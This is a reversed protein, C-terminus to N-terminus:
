WNPWGDGPQFVRSTLMRTLGYGGLGAKTKSGLARATAIVLRPTGGLHHESIPFFRYRYFEPHEMLAVVVYLGVMSSFKWKEIRSSAPHRPTPILVNTIARRLMMGFM